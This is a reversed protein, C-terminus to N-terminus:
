NTSEHCDWYSDGILKTIPEISMGGDNDIAILNFRYACFGDGANDAGTVYWESDEMVLNTPMSHHSFDSWNGSTNFELDIIGDLTTDLGVTTINGDFDIASIDWTFNWYWTIVEHGTENYTVVDRQQVDLFYYVQPIQNMESDSADGTDEADTDDATNGFCGSLVIVLALMLAYVNKTATM